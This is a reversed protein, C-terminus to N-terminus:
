PLLGQRQLEAVSGDALMNILEKLSVPNFSESHGAWVLKGDAVSYVRSEMTIRTERGPTVAGRPTRRLYAWLNEAPTGATAIPGSSSQSEVSVLRLVVVGDVGAGALASRIAGTDAAALQADSVLTHSAVGGPLRRALRDEVQRRLQADEDRFVAVTRQFRLTGTTPERWDTTVNTPRAACAVLLVAVATNILRSFSRM